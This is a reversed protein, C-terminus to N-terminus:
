QDREVWTGVSVEPFVDLFAAGDVRGARLIAVVVIPQHGLVHEITAEVASSRGRETALRPTAVFRLM